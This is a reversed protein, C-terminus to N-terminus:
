IIYDSLVINSIEVGRGTLKYGKKTKVLLGDEIHRRIIDKFYFELSKDFSRKFDEESIGETKRLGLFMFESVADNTSLVERESVNEKDSARIYRETDSINKYRIKGDFGAAGAGFGFYPARDWYGLNHRCRLDRDADKRCFNSIEYQEYGKSKLFFCAEDYMQREEDEGPLPPFDEIHEFLKTGEELILSYCSIHEPEFGTVKQLTEFFSDKTQGPIASMIDININDFGAEGAYNFSKEFDAFTHIRGLLRLEEDKASQLGFSLRNFGAAKLCKLSEPTVTGPNCEITIETDDSFVFSDRLTDLLFVLEGAPLVSPTGGGFFVSDTLKLDEPTDDAKNRIEEALSSIYRKTQDTNEPVASLFDCYICKSVCFPIHVYLGTKKM